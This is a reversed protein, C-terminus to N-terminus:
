FYSNRMGEKKMTWYLQKLIRKRYNSITRRSCGYIRATETVTIDRFYLMEILRYDEVSLSKLIRMLKELCLKRLVIEEVSEGVTISLGCNEENEELENLSCVGYKKDCETQYRERRKSQYWELYVERNVEVLSGDTMRLVYKDRDKPKKGRMEIKRELYM